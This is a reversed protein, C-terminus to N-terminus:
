QPNTKDTVPHAEVSLKLDELLHSLFCNIMQVMCLAFGQCGDSHLSECLNNIKEITELASKSIPSPRNMQDSLWSMALDKIQESLMKAEPDEQLSKVVYDLEMLNLITEQKM